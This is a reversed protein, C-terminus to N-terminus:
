MPLYTPLNLNGTSVRFTVKECLDGVSWGVKPGVLWGVVLSRYTRSSTPAALFVVVDFIGGSLRKM